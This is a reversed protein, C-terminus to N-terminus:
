PGLLHPFFGQALDQADNPSHGRRRPFMYLPYWYTRCLQALASEGGPAQSQAVKVVITWRTTHFSAAGQAAPGYDGEV